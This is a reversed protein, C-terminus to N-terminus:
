GIVRAFRISLVVLGVDGSRQQKLRPLRGTIQPSKSHSPPPEHGGARPDCNPKDNMSFPKPQHTSRASLGSTISARSRLGLRRAQRRFPRVASARRAAGPQMLVLRTPESPVQALDQVVIAADDGKM